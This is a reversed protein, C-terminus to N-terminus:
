RALLAEVKAASVFDDKSLGGVSHTSYRVTCKNYGVEMDPHHDAGHAIWAVANVFAMTEFYNKFPYTKRIEGNVLKWGKLSKLRRAVEASKLATAMRDGGMYYAATYECSDHAPDDAVNVAHQRREGRQEPGDMRAVRLRLQQEDAIVDVAAGLRAAHNIEQEREVVAAEDAAVVVVDEVLDKVAFAIRAFRRLLM